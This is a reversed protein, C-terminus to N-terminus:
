GERGWLDVAAAADSLFRFRNVRVWERAEGFATWARFADQSSRLAWPLFAAFPLVGQDQRKRVALNKLFFREYSEDASSDEEPSACQRCVARALHDVKIREGWLRARFGFDVKQWWPNTITPDYGGSLIFRDRSYFGCYDPPFLCDEAEASPAVHLFKMKGGREFAPVVVSPLLEGQPGSLAPAVCLANRSRLREVFDADMIPLEPEMDNSLVLVFEGWSEAIGLNVM